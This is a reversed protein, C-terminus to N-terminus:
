SRSGLSISRFCLQLPPSDSRWTCLKTNVDVHVDDLDQAPLVVVATDDIVDTKINKEEDDNSM